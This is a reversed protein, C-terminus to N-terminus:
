AGQKPRRGGWLGWEAQFFGEVAVPDPLILGSLDHRSAPTAFAGERSLLAAGGAAGARGCGCRAPLEAPPVFVGAAAAPIPPFTHGLM